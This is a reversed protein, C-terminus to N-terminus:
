VPLQSRDRGSAPRAYKDAVAAGLRIGPKEVAAYSLSAVAAVVALTSVIRGAVGITGSGLAADLVRYVPPLMVIMLPHVLYMSFSARGLHRSVRNVVIRNPSYCISMILAAFIPAWVYLDAAVGRISLLVTHVIPLYVVAAAACLTGFLMVRGLLRRRTFGDDRWVLYALIGSIFFPLQTILNMYAYSGVNLGTLARYEMSSIVASVCCAVVASARSTLLLAMLPFVIYFLIEIGISWGAWVISEHMGPVLGFLLTLNLVIDPYGVSLDWRLKSFLIWVGVMLYFLPAIRFFRRIYFRVVRDRTGLSDAYGYALVFGSLTYFLPVGLGFHTRIVDLYSPIVMRTLAVTHFVVIMVAAICRLAEVGDVRALAKGSHIANKMSAM